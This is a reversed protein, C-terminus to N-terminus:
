PLVLGFLVSCFLFRVCVCVCSVRSCGFKFHIYCSSAFFPLPLSFSLSVSVLGRQVGDPKIMTVENNAMASAHSSALSCPLPPASPLPATAIAALPSSLHTNTSTGGLSPILTHEETHQGQGKGKKKKKKKGEKKRSRPKNNPPPM